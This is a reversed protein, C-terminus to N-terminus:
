SRNCAETLGIPSSGHFIRFCRRRSGPSRLFSNRRKEWKLGKFKGIVSTPKMRAHNVRNGSVATEVNLILGTSGAAKARAIARLATERGGCLYLQYWCQHNHFHGLLSKM